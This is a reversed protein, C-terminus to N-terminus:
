RTNAGSVRPSMLSTGHRASYLPPHVCVLKISAPNLGTPTDLNDADSITRNSSNTIGPLDLAPISIQM